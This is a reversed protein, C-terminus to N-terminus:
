VHARGIQLTKQLEPIPMRPDDFTESGVEPLLSHRIVVDIPDDFEGPLIDVVRVDHLEPDLEDYVYRVM